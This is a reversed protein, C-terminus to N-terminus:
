DQWLFTKVNSVGHKNELELLLEFLPYPELEIKKDEFYRYIQWHVMCWAMTGDRRQREMYSEPMNEILDNLTWGGIENITLSDILEGCNEHPDWIRYIWDCFDDVLEDEKFEDDDVEGIYAKWNHLFVENERLMGFSYTLADRLFREFHELDVIYGKGVIKKKAM